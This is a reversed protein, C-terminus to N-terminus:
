LTSRSSTKDCQRLISAIGEYKVSELLDGDSMPLASNWFSGTSTAAALISIRQNNDINSNALLMFATLSEPLADSAHSM